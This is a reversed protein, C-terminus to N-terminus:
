RKAQIGDQGGRCARPGTWDGCASTTASDPVHTCALRMAPAAAQHPNLGAAMVASTTALQPLDVLSTDAALVRKAWASTWASSARFWIWLMVSRSVDTFALKPMRLRAILRPRASWSAPEEGMSCLSVATPRM